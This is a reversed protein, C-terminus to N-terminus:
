SAASISLWGTLLLAAIILVNLVLGVYADPWGLLCLLLSMGAVVGALGMWWPLRLLAAASTVIFALGVVLWLVGIARIGEDGVDLYRGALTTRYPIPDPTLLRWAHGFGVFHAVGHGLLVLAFLTRILDKHPTNFM